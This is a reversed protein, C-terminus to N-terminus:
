GKFNLPVDIRLSFNRGMNFIGNHGTFNNPYPEFYKLRNLGSQYAVNFLNNGFFSIDRLNPDRINRATPCGTVPGNVLPSFFNVM